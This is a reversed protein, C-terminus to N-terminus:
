GVLGGEEREGVVDGEKGEGFGVAGEYYESVLGRTM